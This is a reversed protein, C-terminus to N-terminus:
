ETRARAHDNFEKRLDGHEDRLIDVRSTNNPHKEETQHGSVQAGLFELKLENGESRKVTTQLSDLQGGIYYAGFGTISGGFAVAVSLFVSCLIVTTRYSNKMLLFETEHDKLTDGHARIAELVQQKEVDTFCMNM